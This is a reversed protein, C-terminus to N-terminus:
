RPMYASCRLLWLRTIKRPEDNDVTFAIDEGVETESLVSGDFNCATSNGTDLIVTGGSVVKYRTAGLSIEEGSESVLNIRGFKLAQVNIAPIAANFSCENSPFNVVSLDCDDASVVTTSLVMMSIVFAKFM